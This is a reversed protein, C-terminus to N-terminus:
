PVSFIVSEPNPRGIYPLTLRLCVIDRASAMADVPITLPAHSQNAGM